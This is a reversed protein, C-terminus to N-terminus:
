LGPADTYRHTHAHATHTDIQRHADWHTDTDTETHTNTHGRTCRRADTHICTDPAHRTHTQHTDPTHTQTRTDTHTDTHADADTQGDTHRGGSGSGQPLFCLEDKVGM